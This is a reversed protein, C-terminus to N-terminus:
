QSQHKSGDAHVHPVGRGSLLGPHDHPEVRVVVDPIVRGRIVIAGALDEEYTVSTIVWTRALESPEVGEEEFLVPWQENDDAVAKDVAEMFELTNLTKPAEM